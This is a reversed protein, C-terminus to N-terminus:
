RSRTKGTLDKQIIKQDNQTAIKHASDDMGYPSNDFDEGYHNADNSILFFIDKGLKLNNNKAYEVIIKSLQDTINEMRDFAMQTVMIPTIKMDRNYYQLFPILAEISHEISQARNNVIFYDKSLKSKILERLPSIEVDKYPGRWQSFEDLILVNSQPGLEKRVTGHTVGFIVVEKTKINKYLPYYVNGAYLYDDHVSIAAILNKTENDSQPNRRSLFDVFHDMEKADWCFGISDRVPRVNKNNIEQSYIVDNLMSFFIVLLLFIFSNSRIMSFEGNM